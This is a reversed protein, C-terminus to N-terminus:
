YALGKSGSEENTGMILRIRKNLPTGMGRLVKLAIMSAVVAGKDDSVGRGYLIGDKEVMTFPDTNWGDEKRAPVVDLHGIIGIVQDGEGCEAYGAYHDLNVTKFGDADLMALARDLVEAPGKGFPANEETTGMASNVAVLKGLREVIEDRYSAVREKIEMDNEEMCYQTLEVM